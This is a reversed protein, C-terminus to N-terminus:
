TSLNFISQEMSLEIMVQTLEAEAHTHCKNVGGSLEGVNSWMTCIVSNIWEMLTHMQNPVGKMIQRANHLKQRLSPQSTISALWKVEEGPCLIGDVGTDWPRVIWVAFPEGQKQQFQIGM